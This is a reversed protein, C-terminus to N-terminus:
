SKKRSGSVEVDVKKTGNSKSKKPWFYMILKVLLFLGFAGALIIGAWKLFKQIDGFLGKGVDKVANWVDKVADGILGAITQKKFSYYYGPPSSIDKVCLPYPRPCNKFPPYNSCDGSDCKGTKDMCDKKSSCTSDGCQCDNPNESYYDNGDDDECQIKESQQENNTDLYYWYCGTEEKALEHLILVVSGVATGLAIAFAVLKWIGKGGKKEGKEKTEEKLSEKFKEVYTKRASERAKRKEEESMDSDEISKLKNNFEDAAANVKKTEDSTFKDKAWDGVNKFAQRIRGVKEPNKKEFEKADQASEVGNLQNMFGEDVGILDSATRNQRENAEERLRNVEDTKGASQAEQAKEQLGLVERATEAGAEGAREIEDSSVGREDGIDPIESM